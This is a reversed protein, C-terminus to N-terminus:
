KKIGGIADMAVKRDDFDLVESGIIQYTEHGKGAILIIDDKKANSIAYEIAEKRDPIIRYEADKDVGEEMDKLIAAPDESRPNDSTFVAEDALQVAIGAMIPRKSKDRDGGCGVIATIKGSAFEKITRLVNELSDPTHSYDVIVTFDQEADVTEFRGPVGRVSEISSIIQDLAIGSLFCASIAALANYVSFKGILNLDVKREEHGPVQLLFSTGRSNITIDKAMIDSKNDIGYTLIQSPTVRKFATSAQDDNNLVAAKMTGEKYVNGMQSFLLSKAYMYEDMNRHYDLHDQTLNTFVAINFDCGRVRGQDLAHSSVEMVATKVGEEKMQYFAKQLFLSEPTTNAVKYSKGKIKMDITGILGSPVNADSVIKEIIHSTTTKGNTGTIGILHMHQTPHGYFSDSLIAMARRTDNVIVVPVGANDVEKEALIAVAGNQVAQKAFQHGDMTFGEICIFLSNKQLRRSDMEISDIEPNEDKNLSYHLLSSLLTKLKM